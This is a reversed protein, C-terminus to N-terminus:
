IGYEKQKESHAYRLNAQEKSRNLTISSDGLLGGIIVQFEENSISYNKLDIENKSLFYEVVRSDLNLKQSIEEISNDEQNLELISKKLSDRKYLFNQTLGLKNRYSSITGHNVNLIKAIESDSYNQNYLELFKTEDFKRKFTSIGYEKLRRGITSYSLGLYEALQERTSCQELAQLFQEKSTKIKESM